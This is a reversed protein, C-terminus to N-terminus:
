NNYWGPISNIDIRQDYFICSLCVVVSTPVFRGFCRFSPVRFSVPCRVTNCSQTEPNGTTPHLVRHVTSVAGCGPFSRFLLSTLRNLWVRLLGAQSDKYPDMRVKKILLHAPLCNIYTQRVWTGESFTRPDRHPINRVVSILPCKSSCPPWRECWLM